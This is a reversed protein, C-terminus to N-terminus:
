VEFGKGKSPQKAERQSKRLQEKGFISNMLDISTAIDKEGGYKAKAEEKHGSHSDTLIYAQSRRLAERNQKRPSITRQLQDAWADNASLKLARPTGAGDFSQWSPKLISKPQISDSAVRPFAGVMDVDDDQVLVSLDEPDVNADQIDSPEDDGSDSPSAALRDDLFTHEDHQTDDMDHDDYLAPVDDFAGPLQKKKRFEFTDEPSSSIYSPVDTSTTSNQLSTLNSSPAQDRTKRSKPTPTSPVEGMTSTHLSEGESADDDYDFGYTTFHPVKFVWIGTEKEYRVFETGVVRRLREVHKNFRPGNFEHSPTKRDKNRPWSNELHITAPVNLGKGRPPKKTSDPYITLSRLTFVAIKDFIDDLKVQNLDVPQNFIIRGCGERGIEFNTVKSRQEQAMKDLEERSPRMYYSGPQPDNQDARPPPRTDGANASEPYEDEHVIALENGKVQEMEPPSAVGNPKPASSRSGNTRSSRSYGLEQASPTANNNIDGSSLGDAQVGDQNNKNGGVTNTDFSVKKKLIGPQKSQDSKDPSPLAAVAENSFLDTRLSRDITLKKLSGAGLYRSSGASFAGPSLLSDGDSDFTRRLNSTSLSKGLSRGVSGHLLSSTFGGPTSVNSSVSSPTGYTSYTFGYGRRPTVLRSQSQYPNIKYHPHIANVKKSKAASIPTALPGVNQTPPPPLGSFISSSGWANSDLLSAQLTQPPLLQNQQQTNGLSNSFNTSNNGFFGGQPQPQNNNSAGFLSNGAPQQQNNNSTGFPNSSGGTNFLTSAPKQQQQSNLGFLAEPNQQGQNTNNNTGFGGFPNSATNTSNSSNNTGFLNTTTSPAKGFLNNGAPQQQNNNTGFISNSAPQQQSNQNNTGFPSSGTNTNTNPTTGFLGGPKAQQNQGFGGFAPASAQNQNQNTGFGSGFPNSAPQQQQGGGFPANNQNSTGFLGGGTTNTANNTGFGSSNAGFGGATNTNTGFSFGGAKPQEQQQATSSGFGGFAPASNTTGGFMSNTPQSTATNSTGFM